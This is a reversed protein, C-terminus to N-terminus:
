EEPQILKTMDSFMWKETIAAVTGDDLMEQIVQNLEKALAEGEENKQLFYAVNNATLREDLFRFEVGENYHMYNYVATDTTAYADLRGLNLDGYGVNTDEYLTVEFGTNEAMEEIITQSAQGNTCGVKKGALDDFTNIDTNDGAVIVCQADGYYPISALYKEEREPKVAWCNAAVDARGTDLEGWIADFAAQKMEITWGTRKGIEDWMEADIGTWTGDDQILSYPEGSGATVVVVTRDSYEAANTTEESSQAETESQAETQAEEASAAMTVATLFVAMLIATLCKKM